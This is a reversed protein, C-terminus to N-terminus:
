SNPRLSERTPMGPGDSAMRWCACITVLLGVIISNTKLNTVHAYGFIWPSAILVIGLAANAFEQWAYEWKMAMGSLIAIVFGLAVGWAVAFFHGEPVGFISPTVFMWLGLLLTVKDQWRGTKM